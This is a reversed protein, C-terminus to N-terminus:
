LSSRYCISYKCDINHKFNWQLESSIRNLTDQIPAVGFTFAINSYQLTGNGIAWFTSAQLITCSTIVIFSLADINLVPNSAPSSLSCGNILSFAGIFEFSDSM